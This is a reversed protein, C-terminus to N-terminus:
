VQARLLWGLGDLTVNPEIESYGSRSLLDTIENRTFRGSLSSFLQWGVMTSFFRPGKRLSPLFWNFGPNARPELFSVQGDPQLVRRIERLVLEADDLLYLFSHGTVLDFQNSDFPLTEADGLIFDVSSNRNRKEKMARQIMKEAVDLGVVQAEPHINELEFASIGPGCGVDLISNFSEGEPGLRRCHQRWTEQ